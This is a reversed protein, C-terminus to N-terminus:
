RDARGPLTDEDTRNIPHSPEDMVRKVARAGDQGGLLDNAYCSMCMVKDIHVGHKCRM